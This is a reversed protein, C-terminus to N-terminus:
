RDIGGIPIGGAGVKAQAFTGGVVPLYLAVSRDNSTWVLILRQGRARREIFSSWEFGFKAVNYVRDGGM